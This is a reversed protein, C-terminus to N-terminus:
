AWYQKDTPSLDAPAPIQMHPGRLHRGLSPAPRRHIGVTHSGGGRGALNGQHAEWPPEGAPGGQCGGLSGFPEESAKGARARRDGLM